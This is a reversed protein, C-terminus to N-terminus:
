GRVQQRLVDNWDTGPEPPINIFIELTGALRKALRFAACQGTFNSDNDGFIHLRQIGAPPHFTEVGHATLAAWTPVGFLQRAALCTEIGEGVGMEDDVEYLRVAAGNLTGAVEMNKKRPELNALYIRHACILKGDPALIPAVVAPFRGVLGHDHDYYNCAPHGRLVPSSAAIAREALYASVIEPKNALRLLREIASQRAADSRGAKAAL